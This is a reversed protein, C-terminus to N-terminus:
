VLLKLHLASCEVGSLIMAVDFAAPRTNESDNKLPNKRHKIISDNSILPMMELPWNMFARTMHLDMMVIAVIIRGYRHRRRMERLPIRM